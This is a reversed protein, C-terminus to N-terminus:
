KFMGIIDGLHLLLVAEERILYQGIHLHPVRHHEAPALRNRQPDPDDEENGDEGTDEVPEAPDSDLLNNVNFGDIIQDICRRLVKICFILGAPLCFFNFGWSFFTFLIRDLWFARSIKFDRAIVAIFECTFAFINIKELYALCM